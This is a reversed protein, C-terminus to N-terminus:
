AQTLRPGIWVTSRASQVQQASCEGEQLIQFQFSTVPAEPDGAPNVGPANLKVKEKDYAKSYGSPFRQKKAEAVAVM